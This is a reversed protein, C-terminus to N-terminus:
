DTQVDQGAIHIAASPHEAIVYCEYSVRLAGHGAGSQVRDEFVDVAAARDSATVHCQHAALLSHRHREVRRCHEHFGTNARAVKFRQKTGSWAVTSPPAIGVM